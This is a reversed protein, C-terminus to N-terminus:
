ASPNFAVIRINRRSCLEDSCVGSFWLQGSGIMVGQSNVFLAEYSQAAILARTTQPLLEDYHALFQRASGLRVVQGHITAKLPYSVMAAVRTREDAAVAAQLERLFARYPDHEGFLLDLRADMGTSGSPADPPAAAALTVALFGAVLFACRPRARRAVRTGAGFTRISAQGPPRKDLVYV